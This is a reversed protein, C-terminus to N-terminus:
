VEASAGASVGCPMNEIASLVAKVNFILTGNSNENGFKRVHEPHEKAFQALWKEPVGTIRRLEGHRAWRPLACEDQFLIKDM